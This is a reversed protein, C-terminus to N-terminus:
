LEWCTGRGRSGALDSSWLCVLKYSGSWSASVSVYVDMWGDTWQGMMCRAADFDSRQGKVKFQHHVSTECLHGTDIRVCRPSCFYCHESELLTGTRQILVATVTLRERPVTLVIGSFVSVDETSKEMPYSENYIKLPKDTIATFLHLVLIEVTRQLDSDFSSM